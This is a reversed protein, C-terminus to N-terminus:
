TELKGQSLFFAASFALFLRIPEMLAFENQLEDMQAVCDKGQCVLRVSGPFARFIQM